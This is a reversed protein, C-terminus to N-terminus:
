MITIGALAMIREYDPMMSFQPTHRNGILAAYVCLYGCDMQGNQLRGLPPLNMKYKAFQKLRTQEDAFITPDVGFHASLPVSAVTISTASSNKRYIHSGEYPLLPDYVTLSSDPHVSLVLRCHNDDGHFLGAIGFKSALGAADAVFIGKMSETDLGEGALVARMAQVFRQARERPLQTM